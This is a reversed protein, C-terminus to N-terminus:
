YQSLSGARKVIKLLASFLWVSLPILVLSTAVLAVLPGHWGGGEFLAGRLGDVALRTPLVDGVLQLWAPLLDRPFLAGSLLTLGFTIVGALAEGQKMVLVIGGLAIGVASLTVGTAALVLVFGLIDANGLPLALFLGGFAIYLAGRIAGFLFPFGTLGFALQVVSMPQMVLVELTGTLQEERIRRALGTTAAQMVVTLVIGVSAFAFYTPAGQLSGARLAVTRSIFYFVVLNMIGFFIDLVFAVRYSRTITFDRRVLAILARHRTTKLIPRDTTHM